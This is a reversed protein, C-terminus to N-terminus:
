ILNESARNEGTAVFNRTEVVPNKYYTKNMLLHEEKYCFLERLLVIFFQRRLTANEVM